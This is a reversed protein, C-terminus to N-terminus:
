AELQLPLQAGEAREAARAATWRELAIDENVAAYMGEKGHAEILQVFGLQLLETTRPRLTLVSMGSREAVEHTTGPGWRLWAEHAALRRGRLNERIEQWTANRFDIAKM